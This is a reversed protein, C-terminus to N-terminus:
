IYQSENLVDLTTSTHEKKNICYLSISEWDFIFDYWLPIVESATLLLLSAKIFSLFERDLSDNM